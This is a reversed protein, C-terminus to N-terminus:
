RLLLMKKIDSFSGAQLRYFYVGSSLRDADWTQSKFGVDQVRDVLTAVERGLVDYVKLTVFSIESLEYRIVTLPNFPNPYNQELSFHTPVASEGKTGRDDPPPPPLGSSQTMTIRASAHLATPSLILEADSSVLVWYGLSPYLTDAIYYGNDYGYFFSTVIAPPESTITSVAIPESGAGILNWGTKVTVSNEEINYGTLVFSTDSSFKLWYGALNKLTDSQVYGTSNQFAYAESISSSFVISKRFDSVTKPVSLLNWRERVQYQASYVSVVFMRQESWEGASLNNKGRVRWFYTSDLSLSDSTWFTDSVGTENMLISTFNSDMSVNIDYETAGSISQWQFTLSVPQHLDGDPPYLLSPAALTTTFRQKSSYASTGGANSARVRWFYTTQPQLSSFEKSATSLSVTTTNQIFNSDLSLQVQYAEALASPEWSIIVTTPIDVAFNEPYLPLPIAPTDIITSFSRVSSFDSVGGVNSARVHWHYTTSNQLPSTQKSTDMMTSDDVVINSFLSDTSVQLHFYTARGTKLWRLTPKISQNLAGDPPSALEPIDPAIVQNTVSRTESWITSHISRSSRVRWFYTSNNAEVNITLATDAITSDHVVIGSSFTSDTAVQVYYPAGYENRRWQLLPSPHSNTSGHLPSTLLVPTSDQEVVSFFNNVPINTFTEDSGSPWEITLSDVIVADGLGFYLNLNQGCYGSQGEIIRSQWVPSGNIIAKARVIAGIASKNSTTGRCDLKLWSNSNGNNRYLISKSNEGYTGAVFVDADGDNDYDGWSVGYWYGLEQTLAESTIKQFLISDAEIFLNKYLYPKFSGGGYATTAFLDLDGDNDYDIWHSTAFYDTDNTAGSSVLKEFIGNGDNRLLSNVGNGWNTIFVDFDRDNDIDGWSASWSSGSDSVLPGTTVKAFTDVGTESLMNRYLDEDENEENVVFMDLDNDNDYDIWNAGRSHNADNVIAGVIIKEFQFNGLNKYLFNKRNGGSNTVYLDLLGDNNYDGWICTESYGGDTVAAGSTIQEFYNSGRNRYMLNNVGYWNVVFLDPDGDNDADGWSSGDSPKNDESVNVTDMKTFTYNPAGGNRYLMNNQGGAKGRSVFLDLNGDDDYDIWNVSRAAALENVHSGATIKTFQQAPSTTAISLLLLVRFFNGYLQKTSLISRIIFM